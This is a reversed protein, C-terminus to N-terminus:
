FPATLIVGNSLFGWGLKIGGVNVEKTLTVM